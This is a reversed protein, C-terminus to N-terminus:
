DSQAYETLKTASAGNAVPELGTVSQWWLTVSHVSYECLNGVCFLSSGFDGM